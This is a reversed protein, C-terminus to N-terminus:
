FHPIGADIREIVKRWDIDAIVGLLHNRITDAAESYGDMEHVGRGWDFGSDRHTNETESIVRVQDNDSTIYITLVKM